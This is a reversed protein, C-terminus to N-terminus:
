EAVEFFYNKNWRSLPMSGGIVFVTRWRTKSFLSFSHHEKNYETYHLTTYKECVSKLTDIYWCIIKQSKFNETVTQWWGLFFIHIYKIIYRYM